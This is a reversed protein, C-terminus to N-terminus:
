STLQTTSGTRNFSATFSVVENFNASQSIDGITYVAYDQYGEPTVDMIIVPQSIEWQKILANFNGTSLYFNTPNVAVDRIQSVTERNGDSDKNTVDQTEMTYTKDFATEAGMKYFGNGETPTTISSPFSRAVSVTVTSDADEIAVNIGSFAYDGSFAIVGSSYAVDTSPSLAQLASQITSDSATDAIDATVENGVRIKFNDGSSSSITLDWEAKYLYVKVLSGSKTSM